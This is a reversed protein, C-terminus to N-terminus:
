LGPRCPLSRVGPRGTCGGSQSEGAGYGLNALMEHYKALFDKVDDRSAVTAAGAHALQFSDNLLYANRVEEGEAIM